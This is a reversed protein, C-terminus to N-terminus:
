VYSMYINKGNWPNGKVRNITNKTYFKKIKIYDLKDIKRITIAQTEPIIDLFNNALDM